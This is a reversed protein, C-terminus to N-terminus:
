PPMLIKSIRIICISKSRLDSRLITIPITQRADRHSLGPNAQIRLHAKDGTIHLYVPSRVRAIVYVAAVALLAFQCPVYAFQQMHASLIEPKM